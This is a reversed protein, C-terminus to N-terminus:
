GPGLWVSLTYLIGVVRRSPVIALSGSRLSVFYGWKMIEGLLLLWAPLAPPLPPRTDPAKGQRVCTRCSQRVQINALRSSRRVRSPAACQETIPPSIRAEINTMALVCEHHQGAVRRPRKTETATQHMPDDVPRKTGVGAM